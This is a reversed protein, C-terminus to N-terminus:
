LLCPKNGIAQYLYIGTLVLISYNSIGGTIIDHKGLQLTQLIKSLHVAFPQFIRGSADIGIFLDTPGDTISDDDAFWGAVMDITGHPLSQNAVECKRFIVSRTGSVILCMDVWLLKLLYAQM